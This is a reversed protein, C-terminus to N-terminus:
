NRELWEGHDAHVIDNWGIEQDTERARILARVAREVDVGQLHATEIELVPLSIGGQHAM